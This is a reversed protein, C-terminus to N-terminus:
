MDLVYQGVRAEGVGEVIVVLQDVDPHVEWGTEDDAPLNMVVVQEHRGTRVVRLYADNTLGEARVGFRTADETDFLPATM